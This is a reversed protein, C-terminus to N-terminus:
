SADAQGKPKIFEVDGNPTVIMVCQQQGRQAVEAAVLRLHIVDARDMAVQYVTVEEFFGDGKDNIWMGKAPYATYGKWRQTIEYELWAHAPYTHHANPLVIQALKM